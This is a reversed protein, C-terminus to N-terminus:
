KQQADSKATKAVNLKELNIESEQIKIDLAAKELKAANSRMDNVKKGKKTRATEFEASQKKLDKLEEVAKKQELAQKADSIKNEQTMVNIVDQFTPEAM